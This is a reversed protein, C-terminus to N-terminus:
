EEDLKRRAFHLDGSYSGIRVSQPHGLDASVQGIGVPNKCAFAIEDM